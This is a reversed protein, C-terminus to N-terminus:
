LTTQILKSGFHLLYFAFCFIFYFLTLVFFFPFRVPSARSGLWGLLVGSGGGEKKGETEKKKALLLSGSTLMEGLRPVTGPWTGAGM